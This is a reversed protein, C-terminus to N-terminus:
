AAVAVQVVVTRPFPTPLASKNVYINTVAQSGDQKDKPVAYRVSGKCEKDLKMEITGVANM